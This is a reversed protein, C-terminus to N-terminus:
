KANKCCKKLKKLAKIKEKLKKRAALFDNLSFISVQNNMAAAQSAADLVRQLLAPSNEGPLNANIENSLLNEGSEQLQESSWVQVTGPQNLHPLELNVAPGFGEKSLDEASPLKDEGVGDPLIQSLIAQRIAEVRAKKNRITYVIKYISM